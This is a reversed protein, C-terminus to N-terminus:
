RRGAAVAKASTVLADLLCRVAPQDAVSERVVAYIVRVPEPRRVRRVVVGPRRHEVGLLPVLSIGLGAAVFGQACAYNDSEVAFCPTFGASGCADLVVQVCPGPPWENGVWAEDALETLDIVRRSALPHDKPLVLRYPDDLLHMVRVGPVPPQDPPLVCIAVDTDGHAIEPVPGPEVLSLDVRVGPHQERLTALAPPVLAQGATAFYQISLHGSRGERLDTLALEAEALKQGIIEAHETLLRGAATPQIGRGVRELLPTGAQRELAAVQQSVASPTYGLNSAAGTVSGSTVVARLVQMRRVDLM